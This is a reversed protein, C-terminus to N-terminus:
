EAALNNYICLCVNCRYLLDLSLFRRVSSVNLQSSRTEVEFISISKTVKGDIAIM